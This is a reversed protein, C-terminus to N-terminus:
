TAQRSSIIGWVDRMQDLCLIIPLTATRDRTAPTNSTVNKTVALEWGGTNWIDVTSHAMSFEFFSDVVFYENALEGCISVTAGLSLHGSFFFAINGVITVPVLYWVYAPTEVSQFLLKSSKNLAAEKKLRM